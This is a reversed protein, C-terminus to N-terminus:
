RNAALRNPRCIACPEFGPRQATSGEAVVRHALGFDLIKIYGDQRQMINEPKIDGHVIGHEHAAGLAQAIQSGIATVKEVGAPANRLAALSRGEVLEMVIAAIGESRVVGHITVINPHNLASAAQAERVIQSADVEWATQASLFKLAVPRDLELDRASWVEGMGGRGLVEKLVFSAFRGEPAFREASPSTQPAWVPHSLFSGASDHECLMDEVAKRIATQAGCAQDLLKTRAEPTTDVAAHFLELVQAWDAPAM